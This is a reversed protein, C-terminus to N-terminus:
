AGSLYSLAFKVVARGACSVAVTVKSLQLKEQGVM